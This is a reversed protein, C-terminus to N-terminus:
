VVFTVKKGTPTDEIRPGAVSKFWGMGKITNVDAELKTQSLDDGPKTSIAALIVEKNIHETGSADVQAVRNTQSWSAPMSVFCLAAAMLWATRRAGRTRERM